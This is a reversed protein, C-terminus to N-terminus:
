WGIRQTITRPLGGRKEEPMAIASPNDSWFPVFGSKYSTFLYLMQPARMFAPHVHGFSPNGFGGTNGFSHGVNSRFPSHGFGGSNANPFQTRNMGTNPFPPPSFDKVTYTNGKVSRTVVFVFM